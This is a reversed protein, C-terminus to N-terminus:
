KKWSATFFIVLYSVMLLISGVPVGMWVGRFGFGLTFTFIYSLPLMIIWYAIFNYITAANQYGMGRLMGAMAGQFLDSFLELAFVPVASIFLSVIEPDTSYIDVIQYQFLVFMGVLLSTSCFIWILTSFGLVKSRHVYGGGLSSGILGATAYSTGFSVVFCINLISFFITCTALENVGLWGSYINLLEYSWWQLILMLSAPAGYKLFEPIRYLCDTNFFHWADRHVVEIKKHTYLTIAAFNITYTIGTAIGAGMVQLDFVIVFLYLNILHITLTVM